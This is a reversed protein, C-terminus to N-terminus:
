YEIDDPEDEDDANANMMQEELEALFEQNEEFWQEWDRAWAIRCWRTWRRQWEGCDAAILWDLFVLFLRPTVPSHHQSASQKAENKAHSM